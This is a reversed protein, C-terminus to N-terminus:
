DVIGAIKVVLPGSLALEGDALAPMTIDVDTGRQNWRLDDHSSGLLGVRASKSLRLDRVTLAGAM